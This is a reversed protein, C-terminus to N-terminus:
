RYNCCIFVESLEYFTGSILASIERVKKPIKYKNYNGNDLPRSPMM